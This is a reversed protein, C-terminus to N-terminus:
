LKATVGITIVRGLPNTVWTDWGGSSNYFPPNSNLLNRATVNIEDAGFWPTSFSYSMNLDLTIYANVHDGGGVPDFVSDFVIPNVSNGNWNKYGSTYNIFLDASYDQNSWGLNARSQIAVSPFSGNAGTTNLINYYPSGPGYAEIYKTFMTLTDGIRFAGYSDTDLQYNFSADIGSPKLNLLNTNPRFQLYQACAPLASTLPIIGQFTSIQAPTACNPTFTLLYTLSAANIVNNFNPATIGGLLTNNWYTVQATFGPLFDPKYDFGLTYGHGREPRLNPDGSSRIIGNINAINCTISAATCGPIGLQTVLPYLAVPVSANNTTGGFSNGVGYGTYAGNVYTGRGDLVPAVFSTSWTGRLKLQDNVDWSFAVKPNKTVGVTDYNDWRGSIDLEFKNMLPVSMEPSVVPIVFEAYASTVNQYYSLNAFTSGQTAPGTNNPNNSQQTLQQRFYEAGFAAKVPGAPLNFVTGTISGRFQQYGAVASLRSANNTLASRVAASTQNSSAPNWVDLANTATLPLSLIATNTGVVSPTAANGGANTTGNLALFAVSNNITGDTNNISTSTGANALLNVVFNDNIHYEAGISTYFADTGSVAKAGPGLLADADWKITEKPAVVGPPTVYFPNAQPSGPGFATASITGRSTISTDRYSSYLMDATLTLNSGIDLRGKLMANNRVTNPLLDQYQWNTCPANASTNSVSTTATPSLFINGAGNPQITAPDCNYNNFNTGGQAIHNPNTNPRSSYLLAGQNTHTAGFIVSGSGVNTGALIGFTRDTTGDMFSYQGSLQVGEFNKRTIMNIVGTIADSGYVSSSGDPLIEVREIMNAPIIGPDVQNSHNTSGTPSRHGDIIVLTANSSSGGLQHITPQVFSNNTQGQGIMGFGTLVPTAAFVQQLTQAGTEKMTTADVTILNSGVPAIGRISTGTVVVEEVANSTANPQTQAESNQAYAMSTFMSTAAIISLTCACLKLKNTTVIM